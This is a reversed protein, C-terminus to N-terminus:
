MDAKPSHQRVIESLRLYQNQTYNLLECDIHRKEAIHPLTFLFTVLEERM